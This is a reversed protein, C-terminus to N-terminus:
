LQLWQKVTWEDMTASRDVAKKKLEETQRQIVRRLAAEQKDHKDPSPPRWTPGPPASPAATGEAKAAAAQSALFSAMDAPPTSHPNNVLRDRLILM